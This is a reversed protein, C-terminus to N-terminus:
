CGIEKARGIKEMEVKARSKEFNSSAMTNDLLLRGLLCCFLVFSLCCMKRQRLGFKLRPPSILRRRGEMKHQSSLGLVGPALVTHRRKRSWALIDARGGMVRWSKWESAWPPWITGIGLIPSDSPTYHKITQHNSSVGQCRRVSPDEPPSREASSKRGWGNGPPASM